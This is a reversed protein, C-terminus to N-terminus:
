AMTVTTNVKMYMNMGSCGPALKAGRQDAAHGGADDPRQDALYEGREDHIGRLHHRDVGAEGDHQGREDPHVQAPQDQEDARLEGEVHLKRLVQAVALLGDFEGAAIALLDASDIM